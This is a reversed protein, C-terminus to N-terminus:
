HLTSCIGLQLLCNNSSQQILLLLFSMSLSSSPSAESVPSTTRATESSSSYSSQLLARSLSSCLSFYFRPPSPSASSLSLPPLRSTAPQPSDQVSFVAERTPQQGRSPPLPSTRSASSKGRQQRASAVFYTCVTPIVLDTAADILLM